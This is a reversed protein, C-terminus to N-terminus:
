DPLMLKYTPCYQWGIAQWRQVKDKTLKVNRGFNLLFIGCNTTDKNLFFELLQTYCILFFKRRSIRFFNSIPDQVCELTEHATGTGVGPKDLPRLGRKDRDAPRPKQLDAAPLGVAPSGKVPGKCPQCGLVACGPLARSGRVPQHPYFGQRCGSM